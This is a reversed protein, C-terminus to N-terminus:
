FDNENKTGKAASGVPDAQHNNIMIKGRHNSCNSVRRIRVGLAAPLLGSSALRSGMASTPFDLGRVLQAALGTRGV